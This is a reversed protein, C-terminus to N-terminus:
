RHFGTSALCSLFLVEFMRQPTYSTEARKLYQAANNPMKNRIAQSLTDTSKELTLIVMKESSSSVSVIDRFM